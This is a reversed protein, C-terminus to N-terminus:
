LMEKISQWLSFDSHMGIAHDITSYGSSTRNRRQICAWLNAVAVSSLNIFAGAIRSKDFRLHGHAFSTLQQVHPSFLRKTPKANDGARSYLTSPSDRAGGHGSNVCDSKM